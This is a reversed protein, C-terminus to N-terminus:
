ILNLSALSLLQLLLPPKLFLITREKEVRYQMEHRKMLLRLADRLHAM